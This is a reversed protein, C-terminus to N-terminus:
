FSPIHEPVEVIKMKTTLTTSPMKLFVFHMGLSLIRVGKDEGKDLGGDTSMPISESDIRQKM